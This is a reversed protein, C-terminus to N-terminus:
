INGPILISMDPKLESADIDNLECIEYVARRTDTDESKYENAIDWLTDGYAIRVTTNIVEKASAENVILGSVFIFGSIIFGLMIIISTIFRAKSKIRYRKRRHKTEKKNM